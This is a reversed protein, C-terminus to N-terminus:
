QFFLSYHLFFLLGLPIAAEMSVLLDVYPAPDQTLVRSGNTGPVRSRADQGEQTLRTRMWILTLVSANQKQGTM